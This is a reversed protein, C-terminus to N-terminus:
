QDIKQSNEPNPKESSIQILSAILEPTLIALSKLLLHPKFPKLFSASRIGSTLAITLCNLYQGTQVDVETDGAFICPKVKLISKTAQIKITLPNQGAPTIQIDHFYHYLNLSHLQSLTYGPHRRLTVLSLRYKQSLIHLRSSVGPILSDLKLYEPQEILELFRKNYDDSLRPNVRNLTLLQTTSTKSRKLQWYKHKPLPTGNLEHIITKYVLYHREKTDILTGDLDFIIQAPPTKAM